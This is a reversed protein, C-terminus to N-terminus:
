RGYRNILAAFAEDDLNEVDKESITQIGKQHLLKAFVGQGDVLTSTFTGDYVGDPSCSPSNKKLIALKCDYQKCTEFSIFAGKEFYETVDIGERNMVKGNIVESPIRPTSLGGQVEPCVMVALGEDVLKKIRECRNNKGNYKCNVGALCASVLIMSCRGNVHSEVM